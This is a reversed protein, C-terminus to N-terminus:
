VSGWWKPSGSDQAVVRHKRFLYVYGVMLIYLGRQIKPCETRDEVKILVCGIMENSKLFGVTDGGGTPIAERDFEVKPSFVAVSKNWDVGDLVVCGRFDFDPLYM